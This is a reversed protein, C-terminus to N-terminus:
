NLYNEMEKFIRQNKKKIRFINKKLERYLQNNLFSIISQHNIKTKFEEFELKKFQAFGSM